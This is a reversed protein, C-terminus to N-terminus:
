HNHSRPGGSILARHCASHKKRRWKWEAPQQTLTAHVALNIQMVLTSLASSNRWVHFNSGELWFADLFVLSDGLAMAIVFLARRCVPIGITEMPRMLATLYNLCRMTTPPSTNGSPLAFAPSDSPLHFHRFLNRRPDAETFPSYM